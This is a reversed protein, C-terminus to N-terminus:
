MHWGLVVASHKHVVFPVFFVLFALFDLMRANAAPCITRRERNALNNAATSTPLGNNRGRIGARRRRTRQARQPKPKASYYYAASFKYYRKVNNVGYTIM